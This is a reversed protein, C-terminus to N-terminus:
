RGSTSPGAPSTVTTTSPGPSPAATTPGASTPPSSGPATGSPGATTPVSGQPIASPGATTPALPGPTVKLGNSTTGRPLVQGTQSDWVGFRPDIVVNTKPLNIQLWIGLSTFAQPTQEARIDEKVDNFTAVGRKTVQVVHFGFSSKVPGQFENIPGEWVAKEFADTLAGKPTCGLDGAEPISNKDQSHDTVEKAWDAGAKLEAIIKNAEAETTVLIHRACARQYNNPNADYVKRLEEDTYKVELTKDLTVFSAYRDITQSLFDAPLKDVLDGFAGKVQTSAVKRAEDSIPQGRKALEAQIATVAVETSLLDAVIQPTPADSKEQTLNSLQLAAQSAGPVKKFVDIQDAILKAPIDKGNVSGASGSFDFPVVPAAAKGSSSCATLVAGVVALALWARGVRTM